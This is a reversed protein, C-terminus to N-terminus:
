GVWIFTRRTVRDAAVADYLATTGRADFRSLGHELSSINSTFGQDLYARDSFNVIFAADQPNSARVLDLAAATAAARKDLMSGSNDVLIGMSVPLDRHQFSAIPQPAM